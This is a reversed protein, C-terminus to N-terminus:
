PILPPLQHRSVEVAELAADRHRERAAELEALRIAADLEAQHREHRAADQWRQRRNMVIVGIIIPVVILLGPLLDM